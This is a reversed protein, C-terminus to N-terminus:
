LDERERESRSPEVWVPEESRTLAARSWSWRRHPTIEVPRDQRFQVALVRGFKASTTRLRTESAVKPAAIQALDAPRIDPLRCSPPQREKLAEVSPRGGFVEEDDCNRRMKERGDHRGKTVARVAHRTNIRDRSKMRRCSRPRRAGRVSCAAVSDAAELSVHGLQDGQNAKDAPGKRESESSLFPASPAPQPDPAEINALLPLTLQWPNGERPRASRPPAPRLQPIASGTWPSAPAPPAASRARGPPPWDGDASADVSSRTGGPRPATACAAPM